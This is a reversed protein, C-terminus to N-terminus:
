FSDTNKGAAPHKWNEGGCHHKSVLYLTCVDANDPAFVNREEGGPGRFTRKGIHVVDGSRFSVRQTTTEM